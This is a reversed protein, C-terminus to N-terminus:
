DLWCLYLSVGQSLFVWSVLWLSHMGVIIAILLAAGVYGYEISLEPNSPHGGAIVQGALWGVVGMVIGVLMNLM